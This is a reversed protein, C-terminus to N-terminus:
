LSRDDIGDNNTDVGYLGFLVADRYIEVLDGIGDADIDTVRTGSPNTGDLATRYDDINNALFYTRSENARVLVTSSAGNDRAAAAGALLSSVAFGNTGAIDSNAAITAAAGGTVTTVSSVFSLSTTTTRAAGLSNIGFANIFSTTLAPSSTTGRNSAFFAVSGSAIFTQTNTLLTASLNAASPSTSEYSFVSFGGSNLTTADADLLTCPLFLSDLARGSNECLHNPFIGVKAASGAVYRNGILPRNAQPWIVFRTNSLSQDTAGRLTIGADGASNEIGVVRTAAASGPADQIRIEIRGTTEFLVIQFTATGAGNATPVANWEVTFTRNPTTGETLTLIDGGATPDLDTWFGAVFDELSSSSPISSAINGLEAGPASFALM